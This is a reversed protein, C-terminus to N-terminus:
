LKGGCHKCYEADPDHGELSCTPCCQTSIEKKMPQSLEATVIGTPVAIIGYGMIMVLSALFQGFPTQPSIDGYGVTTMTVVAWYVSRPISTFGNAEGEVVYMVAGVIIVLMLVCYLFVLIKVRSARLARALAASEHLYRALKMVRFIRLLRLIRIILLFRTAPAVLSLYTPIVALFDIIGFFSFAYSTPRQVCSLRLLYEITFVITFVWEAARLVTEYEASIDSVSELMVVVVSAVIMWLLGVDFAKGWGTDAEYIIEHVKHRWGQLPYEDTEPTSM